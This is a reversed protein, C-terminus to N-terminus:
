REAMNEILDRIDDNASIATNKIAKDTERVCEVAETKKEAVDYGKEIEVGILATKGSIYVSAEEIGEIEMLAQEIKEIRDDNEHDYASSIDNTLSSSSCGSLFVCCLVFILLKKM